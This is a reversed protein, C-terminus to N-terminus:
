RALDEIISAVLAVVSLFGVALFPSLMVWEAPTM